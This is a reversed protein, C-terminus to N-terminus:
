LSMLGLFLSMNRTRKSKLLRKVVIRPFFFAQIMTLRSRPLFPPPVRSSGAYPDADTMIRDSDSRVEYDSDYDIFEDVMGRLTSFM